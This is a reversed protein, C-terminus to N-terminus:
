GWSVVGVGVWVIASMQGLVKDVVVLLKKREIKVM